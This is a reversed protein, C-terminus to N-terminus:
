GSDVIYSQLKNNIEVSYLIWFQVSVIIWVTDSIDNGLAAEFDLCCWMRRVKVFCNSLIM